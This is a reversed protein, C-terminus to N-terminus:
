QHRWHSRAHSTQVLDHWSLCHCQEVWALSEPSRSNHLYWTYGRLMNSYATSELKWYLVVPALAPNGSKKL